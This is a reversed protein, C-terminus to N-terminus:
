FSCILSSLPGLAHSRCDSGNADQSFRLFHVHSSITSIASLAAVNLSTTPSAM